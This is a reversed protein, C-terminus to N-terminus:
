CFRSDFSGGHNRRTMVRNRGKFDHAVVDIDGATASEVFQRSQLQQLRTIKDRIRAAREFALGSAAEDMQRQLVDLVETTKGLLFLIAHKVDEHYDAESVLGVCPGTCRM